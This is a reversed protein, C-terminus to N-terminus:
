QKSLFFYIRVSYHPYENCRYQAPKALHRALHLFHSDDSKKHSRSKRYVPETRSCFEQTTVKWICCSWPITKYTSSCKSYNVCQKLPPCYRSPWPLYNCEIWMKIRFPYLDKCSVGREKRALVFSGLIIHVYVSRHRYFFYDSSPNPVFGVISENPLTSKASFPQVTCFPFPFLHNELLLIISYRWTLYKTHCLTSYQYTWEM